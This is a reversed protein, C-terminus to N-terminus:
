HHRRCPLYRSNVPDPTTWPDSFTGLNKSHGSAVDVYCTHAGTLLPVAALGTGCALLAM